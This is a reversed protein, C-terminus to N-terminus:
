PCPASPLVDLSTLTGVLAFDTYIIRLRGMIGNEYMVYSMTYLPMGGPNGDKEFYGVTMPWHMLGAYGAVDIAKDKGYDDAATSGQGIVTSTAYITEGQADGSYLDVAYFRKGEKAADITRNIQEVPFVVDPPLTFTKSKPRTLVVTATGDPRRDAIGLAQEALKTDAFARQDFEFHGAATEKTTQRLDSTQRMGDRTNTRMVFRVTNTYGKCASGTFEMVLRGVVDIYDGSPVLPDLELDYVARFTALPTTQAAASGAALALVAAGALAVWRPRRAQPTRLSAGFVTASWGTM